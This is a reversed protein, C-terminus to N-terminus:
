GYNNENLSLWPTLFSYSIQKDALAFSAKYSELGKSLVDEGKGNLNIAKLDHFKKKLINIGENFGIMLCSGNNIKATDGKRL